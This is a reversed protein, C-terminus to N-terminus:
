NSPSVLVKYPNLIGNPDFLRKIDHMVSVASESKTFHIFHPKCLGLGHEASISGKHRSTEEFLWPEILEFAAQSKKPTSVNLHLNGDGLHGYGIVINEDMNGLRDRMREVVKYMQSLPLSIDYKCVFGRNTLATALGERLKWLAQQQALDQALIADQVIGQKLLVEVLSTLKNQEFDNDCGRTELLMYQGHMESGFPNLAGPLHSVAMEMSEKDLFEVASLTDVLDTRVRGLATLVADFDRMALFAVNTFPALRPVQIAVKTVIGLTGEGGILLHKLDYGTNDKRLASLCDLTRGDALVAELGLVSGHLSGYRVYNIGGANTSVNGGIQCSGRAGLDLPMTFGKASLYKSLNELICGAECVLVGSHEDFSIISNMRGMSLVIEDFCPVSGGVLGTNGGQPVVALRRENCHRLIDGVEEPTRPRLALECKGRWKGQWDQNFPELDTDEGRLVNKQGLIAEFRAVDDSNLSAFKEDRRPVYAFGRKHCVRGLFPLRVRRFSVAKALSVFM